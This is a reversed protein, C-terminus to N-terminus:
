YPRVDDPDAEDCLWLRGDAPLEERAASSADDLTPFGSRVLVRAGSADVKFVDFTGNNLCVIVHDDATTAM